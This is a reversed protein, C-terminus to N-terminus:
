KWGASYILYHVNDDETANAREGREDLVDNYGYPLIMSSGCSSCLLQM